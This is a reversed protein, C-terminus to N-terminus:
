QQVLEATDDLQATELVLYGDIDISKRVIATLTGDPLKVVCETTAPVPMTAARVQAVTM